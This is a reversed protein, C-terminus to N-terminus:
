ANLAQHSLMILAPPRGAELLSRMTQMDAATHAYFQKYGKCLSSLGGTGFRHKPCEGHCLFLWRCRLCLRPLATYKAAGFQFREPLRYLDRISTERINGLRYSPYVFHDCPYVDGNHEVVLGDGCTECQACLSPPQGCWSALTNDFLQVYIRGVDARVWEDYVDCLFQGFDAASISYPTLKGTEESASDHPHTIRGKDDIYELVPLFQIFPTLARLYRYVEAGRGASRANVTCLINFDVGGSAMLQAARLVRDSTPRGGRDRRYADHLDPPGDLSLGVLFHHDHFFRCWEDTVLLGNTQLTNEIQKDGRYKEQLAVAKRYFDLGALLPEGGHWCFTVVPVEVAEIYQRIYLELLEDDMVPEKGGYLEAKGLYYCYDCRLNCASGVPKVLTSFAQPKNLKQAASFPLVSSM